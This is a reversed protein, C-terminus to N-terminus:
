DWYHKRVRMLFKNVVALDPEERVPSRHQADSLREALKDLYETAEWDAWEGDRARRVLPEIETGVVNTSFTGTELIQLGYWLTRVATVKMKNSKREDAQEFKKGHRQAYSYSKFSNAVRSRSILYPFLARLETGFDTSEVVPSKLIELTSPNSKLCLSLFHGIEMTTDPTNTKPKNLIDALYDDLTNITPIRTEKLQLLDITPCVFVSRYDVDSSDNTIGYSTSGTIVKMILNAVM